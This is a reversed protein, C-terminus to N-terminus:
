YISSLSPTLQKSIASERRMTSTPPPPEIGGFEMPHLTVLPLESVRPAPIETSIAEKLYPTRFNSNSSENGMYNEKRLSDARRNLQQEELVGIARQKCM